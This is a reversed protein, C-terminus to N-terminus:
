AMANDDNMLIKVEISSSSRIQEDQAKLELASTQQSNYHVSRRHYNNRAGQLYSILTSSSASTSFRQDDARARFTPPNVRITTTTKTRDRGNRNHNDRPVRPFSSIVIAAYLTLPHTWQLRVLTTATIIQSSTKEVLPAPPRHRAETYHTFRWRKLASTSNERHALAPRKLQRLSIPRPKTQSQRRSWWRVGWRVGWRVVWRVGWRVDWLVERSGVLWPRARSWRRAVIGWNFYVVGKLDRNSIVTARKRWSRRRLARWCCESGTM